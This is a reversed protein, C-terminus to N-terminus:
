KQARRDELLCNALKKQYFKGNSTITRGFESAQVITVNEWLGQLKMEEEFSKLAVNLSTLLEDQKELLDSKIRQNKFFSKLTGGSLLNSRYSCHLDYWAYLCIIRM